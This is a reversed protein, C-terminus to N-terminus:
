GISVTRDRHALSSEGPKYKEISRPQAQYREPNWRADVESFVYVHFLTSDQRYAFMFSKSDRYSDRYSNRSSM